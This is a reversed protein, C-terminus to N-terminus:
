YDEGVCIGYKTFLLDEHVDIEERSFREGIVTAPCGAVISYPQTSKTVVSGAAVISGRGIRVGTLVIAGFGIWVDPGIVLTESRGPGSYDEDGIWPARRVTCGLANIDHDHRGILGVQNALMSHAGIKGDCEITCQKGIYVDNEVVLEVPAALITGMGLHVREGLRVGHRVGYIRYIRQWLPRAIGIM